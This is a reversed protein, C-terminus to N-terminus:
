LRIQSVVDSLPLMANVNLACVITSPMCEPTADPIAGEDNRMM